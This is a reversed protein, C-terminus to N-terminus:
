ITKSWQTRPRRHFFIYIYYVVHPTEGRFSLLSDCKQYVGNLIFPNSEKETPSGNM